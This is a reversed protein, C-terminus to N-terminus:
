AANAQPRSSYLLERIDAAPQAPAFLHVQMEICGLATVIARQEETEVGEATTAMCRM